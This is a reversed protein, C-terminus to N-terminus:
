LNPQPHTMRSTELKVATLVAGWISAKKTTDVPYALEKNGWEVM